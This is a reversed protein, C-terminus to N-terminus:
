KDWDLAFGLQVLELVLDPHKEVSDVCWVFDRQQKMCYLEVLGPHVAQSSVCFDFRVGTSFLRYFTRQHRRYRHPQSQFDTVLLGDAEILRLLCPYQDPTGPDDHLLMARLRPEHPGLDVERFYHLRSVGMRWLLSLLFLKLAPYDIGDVHLLAPVASSTPKSDEGIRTFKLKRGYQVEAEPSAFAEITGRYFVAAVREYNSFRQECEACLLRERYGKQELGAEPQGEKGFTHFRNKEDYLTGFLFEPIIHSNKLEAVRQCLACKAEPTFNM